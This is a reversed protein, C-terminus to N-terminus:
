VTLYCHLWESVQTYKIVYDLMLYKNKISTLLHTHTFLFQWIQWWRLLCTVLLIFLDVTVGIFLSVPIGTYLGVFVKCHTSNTNVHKYSSFGGNFWHMNVCRYCSVSLFKNQNCNVFSACHLWCCLHWIPNSFHDLFLISHLGKLQHANKRNRFTILFWICFHVTVGALLCGAVSCFIHFSLFSSITWTAVHRELQSQSHHFSHCINFPFRTVCKITLIAIFLM